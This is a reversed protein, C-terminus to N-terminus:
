FIVFDNKINEIRSTPNQKGNSLEQVKNNIYRRLENITIEKDQNFDAKKTKVGDLLCYTFLGNKWASSEMAYETGSASSIVTSGDSDSVDAFLSKSLDLSSLGFQTSTVNIGVARFQIEEISQEDAQDNITVETTDIEGSHCADLLIVKNRAKVNKFSESIREYPIGRVEPHLFDMDYAALYYNFNADLVGHGAIFFIVADQIKSQALLSDIKPLNELVVEENILSLQYKHNFQKNKQFLRAVDMADKDAYRLNYEKQQYLSSGITIIYLDPKVSKFVGEVDFSLMLSRFGRNDEVYADISNLGEHLELNIQESFVKGSIEKGGVEFVPVGNVMVNLKDLENVSYAEIEFFFDPSTSKKIDNTKIKLTPLEDINPVSKDTNKLKLHRKEVALSLRESFEQSVFPLKGLVLDPRNFYIDFQQFGIMKDDVKFGIFNLAGKSAYYYGANDVYIFDTYGLLTVKCLLERTSIDILMLAGEQDTITLMGLRDDLVYNNVHPHEKVFNDGVISMLQEKKSHNKNQLIADKWYTGRTNNNIKDNSKSIYIDNTLFNWKAIWKEIKLAQSPNNEATKVKYFIISMKSEDVEIIEYPLFHWNNLMQYKSPVIKKSHITNTIVDWVRLSGDEYLLGYATAGFSKIDAIPACTSIFTNLLWGTELERLFIKGDMGTTVILKQNPSVAFSQLSKTHIQSSHVVTFDNKKRVELKGESDGIIIYEGVEQVRNIRTFTSKLSLSKIKNENFNLAKLNGNKSGMYLTNANTFGAVTIQNFVGIIQLSEADILVAHKDYAGGVLVRNKFAYVCDFTSPSVLKLTDLKKTELHYRYLYDGGIYLQQLSDLVDFSSIKSDFPGIVDILNFDYDWIKVNRESSSCSFLYNENVKISAINGYHAKFSSKQTNTAIDWVILKGDEGATVFEFDSLFVVDNIGGSHGTQIVPIPTQSTAKFFVVFFLVCIIKDSQL